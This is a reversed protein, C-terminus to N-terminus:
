RKMSLQLARRIWEDLEPEDEWQKRAEEVAWAAEEENYGLAMLAEIAEGVRGGSSVPTEVPGEASDDPQQMLAHVWGAKKLKDKLDLILRQATKKGIGPLKTLFVVNEQQIAQVVQRPTGAALISLGAKPGIGSVDLLMRFLDREERTPFGYLTVADERVVQHTYVRTQVNPEWRYPNGCFVRYGVGSVNIAIYDAGAYAVTGELFEILTELGGTEVPEGM